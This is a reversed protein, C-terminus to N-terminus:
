LRKFLDRSFMQRRRLCSSYHSKIYKLLLSVRRSLHYKLLQNLLVRKEAAVGTTFRDRERLLVCLSTFTRACGRLRHIRDSDRTRILTIRKWNNSFPILNKRFPARLCECSFNRGISSFPRANSSPMRTYYVTSAYKDTVAEAHM